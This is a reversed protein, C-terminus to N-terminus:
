FRHLEQFIQEQLHDLPWIEFGFWLSIDYSHSEMMYHQNRGPVSCTSLFAESGALNLFTNFEMHM